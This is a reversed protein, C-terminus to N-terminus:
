CKVYKYNVNALQNILSSFTSLDSFFFIFFGGIEM